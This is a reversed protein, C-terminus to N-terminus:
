FIFKLNIIDFYKSINLNEYYETNILIKKSDYTSLINLLEYNISYINCIIITDTNNQLLQLDYIYEISINYVEKIVKTLCGRYLSFPLYFKCFNDSIYYQINM